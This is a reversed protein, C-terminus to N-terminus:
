EPLPPPLATDPELGELLDEYDAYLREDIFQCTMRKVYTGAKRTMRCTTRTNENGYQEDYEDIIALVEEQREIPVRAWIMKFVRKMEPTAHGRAATGLWGIAAIPDYPAGLGRRYLYALRFQSKKFGQQAAELLYPFAEKYRKQSYLRGGESHANHVQNIFVLDRVDDPGFGRDAQVVMEEMPQNNTDRVAPPASAEDDPANDGSGGSAAETTSSTSPHRLQDDDDPAGRAPSAALLLSLAALQCVQYLDVRMIVITVEPRSVDVGAAILTLNYPDVSQPAFGWM